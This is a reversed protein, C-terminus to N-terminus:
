LPCLTNICYRSVERCREEARNRVELEAHRNARDLTGLEAARQVAREGVESARERGLSRVVALNSFTAWGYPLEVRRVQDWRPELVAQRCDVLRHWHDMISEETSRVDM